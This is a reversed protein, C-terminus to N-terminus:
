GPVASAPTPANPVALSVSPLLAELKSGQARLLAGLPGWPVSELMLSWWESRVVGAAWQRRLRLAAEVSQAGGAAGAGAGASSGGASPGAPPLFPSSSPVSPLGPALTLSLLSSLLPANPIQTPAQAPTPPLAPIKLAKSGRALAEMALAYWTGLAARAICSSSLGAQEPPVGATLRFAAPWILSAFHSPLLSPSPPSLLAGSGSSSLSSAGPSGRVSTTGHVASTTNNTTNTGAYGPYDRRQPSPSPVLPSSRDPTSSTRRAPTGSTPQRPPPPPSPSPACSHIYAELLSLHAQLLLSVNCAFTDCSREASVVTLRRRYWTPAM